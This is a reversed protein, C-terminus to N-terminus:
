NKGSRYFITIRYGPIPLHNYRTKFSRTSSKFTTILSTFNDTQTNL